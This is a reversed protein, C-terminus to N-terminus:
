VSELCYKHLSVIPFKLRESITKGMVMVLVHLLILSRNERQRSYILLMVNPSSILFFLLSEKLSACMDPSIIDSLSRNHFLFSISFYLYLGINM